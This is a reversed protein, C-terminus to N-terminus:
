IHGWTVAVRHGTIDRVLQPINLKWGPHELPPWNWFTFSLNGFGLPPRSHWDTLQTVKRCAPCSVSVDEQEHWKVIAEFIADGFPSDLKDIRQNCSSCEFYECSPGLAYLNFSRGVNPEVGSTVLEWFRVENPIGEYISSVSAGVRFGTGALVCDPVLDGAIIRREKLEDIVAACVTPADELSVDQDVLMEFTTSM